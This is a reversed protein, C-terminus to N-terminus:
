KVFYDVRLVVTAIEIVLLLKLEALDPGWLPFIDRSGEKEGGACSLESGSVM